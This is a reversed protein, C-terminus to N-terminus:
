DAARCYKKKSLENQIRTARKALSRQQRLHLNEEAHLGCSLFLLSSASGGLYVAHGVGASIENVSAKHAESEPPTWGREAMLVM